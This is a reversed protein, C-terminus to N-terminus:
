VTDSDAYSIYFENANFPPSEEGRGFWRMGFYLKIPQLVRPLPFFLSKRYISNNIFGAKNWALIADAGVKCIEKVVGRMLIAAQREYDPDHIFDMLYGIKGGHKELVTYVAIAVLMGDVFIGKIKYNCGPKKVFRWEMYDSDRNVTANLKKSFKAWLSDYGIDKFSDFDEVSANKDGGWLEKVWLFWNFVFNDVRLSSFGGTYKKIPYLLNNLYLMYPPHEGRVWGLRKFFGPASNSNPFGYVLLVGDSGAADYVASALKFFLGKGRHHSDTLTDISQSAVVEEGNLLLRVRMISYVAADDGDPSVAMCSVAGGASNDVYMWRLGELPKTDANREFISAIRQVGAEGSIRQTLYEM